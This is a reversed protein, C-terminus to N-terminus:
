CKELKGFIYRSLANVDGDFLYADIGAEKAGEVNAPADDIFLCEDAKLGYRDLLIEYIKRDPKVCNVFASIVKGDFYVSAPVAPWYIDASRGANSLLYINLGKKKLKMILEETGKIPTMSEYWNDLLKRAIPYLRKPLKTIADNYIDDEVYIGMDMKYWGESHFINEMLLRIDEPDKINHQDIIYYPDFKILVNGMDFIINKLM